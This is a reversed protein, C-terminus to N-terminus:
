VNGKHKLQQSHALLHCNANIIHPQIVLEKIIIYYKKSLKQNKKALNKVYQSLQLIRITEVLYILFKWFRPRDKAQNSFLQCMALYAPLPSICFNFYQSKLYTKTIKKLWSEMSKTCKDICYEHKRSPFNSRCKAKLWIEDQFFEKANASILKICYAICLNILVHSIEENIKSNIHVKM